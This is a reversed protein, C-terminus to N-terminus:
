RVAGEEAGLTTISPAITTNMGPAQFFTTGSLNDLFAIAGNKYGVWLRDDHEFIATVEISDLVDPVGLPISDM